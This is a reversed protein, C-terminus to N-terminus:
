ALLDPRRIAVTFHTNANALALTLKTTVWSNRM